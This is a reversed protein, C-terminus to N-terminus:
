PTIKRPVGYDNVIRRVATQLDIKGDLYPQWDRELIPLAGQWARDYLGNKIAYPTYNDQLRRTFEGGTYFLVAHWVARRQFLKDQSKLEADLADAVKEILGHSAEHFLIELAAPGQNGANTSSVTIHTPYLVTYAGAWSAYVSVDTRIPDSPWETQYAAALQKTLAAGHKAVLPMASQTWARNDRNHAAWWRTRYEPAAANLVEILDADVDPLAPLSDRSVDSLRNNIVAIERLLDHDVIRRRYYDLASQWPKSDSPAASKDAAQQYLFHHLNVWFNSRFDFLSHPEAAPAPKPALALAAGIAVFERRRM